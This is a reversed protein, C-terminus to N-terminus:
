LLWFSSDSKFDTADNVVTSEVVTSEVAPQEVSEKVTLEPEFDSKQVLSEFEQVLSEFNGKM